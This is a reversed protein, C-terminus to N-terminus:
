HPVSALVGIQVMGDLVLQVAIAAILFGFVKETVLMRGEDLKESVRNAWRFVAVDILLVFVLIGFEVAFVSLSKAEASITMLGVIGVPNLLYPVALPFLALQMPDKGAISRSGDPPSLVMWVALVLLIVGGAISLSGITFHLLTRLLEGLVMLLVAVTAATTLMKRQVRRKTADDLSATITLFPVLALKPGIGILLVLFTDIVGAATISTEDM